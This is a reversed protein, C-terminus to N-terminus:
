RERARPWRRRSVRSLVAVTVESIVGVLAGPERGARRRYVFSPDLSDLFWVDAPRGAIAVFLSWEKFLYSHAKQFFALATFDPEPNLEEQRLVIRSECSTSPLHRARANAIEISM